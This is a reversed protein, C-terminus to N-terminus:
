LAARLNRVKALGSGGVQLRWVTTRYVPHPEASGVILGHDALARLARQATRRDVGAIDALTGVSPCAGHGSDDAQDALGLLVCRLM